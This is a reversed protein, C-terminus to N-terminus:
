EEIKDFLDEFENSADARFYNEAQYDDINGASLYREIEEELQPDRDVQEFDEADLATSDKLELDAKVEATLGSMGPPVKYYPVKKGDIIVFSKEIQRPKNTM